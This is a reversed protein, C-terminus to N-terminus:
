KREIFRGFARDKLMKDAPLVLGNMTIYVGRPTVQAIAFTIGINFATDSESFRASTLAGALVITKSPIAAPAAATQTM